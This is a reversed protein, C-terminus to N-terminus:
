TGPTGAAAAQTCSAGASKAGRGVEMPLGTTEAGFMLWDGPQYMGPEAYHRKAFKSFAILRKPGPLQKFAAHFDDWSPHVAVCVYEWYDLGARKLRCPSSPLLLPCLSFSLPSMLKHPQQLQLQLQGTTVPFCGQNLVALLLCVSHSPELLRGQLQSGLVPM